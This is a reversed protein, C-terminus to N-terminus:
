TTLGISTIEFSSVNGGDIGHVTIDAGCYFVVGDVTVKCVQKEPDWTVIHSTGTTAGIVKADANTDEKFLIPLNTHISSIANKVAEKTHVVGNLDPKDYPIPITIKVKANEVRM